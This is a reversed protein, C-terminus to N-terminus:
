TVAPFNNSYEMGIEEDIFHPFIIFILHSIKNLVYFCKTGAVNSDLYNSNNDNLHYYVTKLPVLNQEVNIGLTLHKM